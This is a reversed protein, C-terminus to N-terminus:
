HQNDNTTEIMEIGWNLCISVFAFFVKIFLGKKTHGYVNEQKEDYLAHSYDSSLWLFYSPLM